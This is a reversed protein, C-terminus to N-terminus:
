IRPFQDPIVQEEWSGVRQHEQVGCRGNIWSGGGVKKATRLLVKQLSVGLLLYDVSLQGSVLCPGEGDEHRGYM